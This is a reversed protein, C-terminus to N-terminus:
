VGKILYLGAAEHGAKILELAIQERTVNLVPAPATVTPIREAKARAYKAATNEAMDDITAGIIQNHNNSNSMFHRVLNPMMTAVDNDAQLKTKQKFLRCKAHATELAKVRVMWRGKVKKAGWVKGRACLNNARKPEIGTLRIAEPLPIRTNVTQQMNM